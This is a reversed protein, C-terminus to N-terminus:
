APPRSTGCCRQSMRAIVDRATMLSRALPPQMLLHLSRFSTEGPQAMGKGIELLRTNGLATQRGRLPDDRCADVIVIALKHAGGTDQIFHLDRGPLGTFRFEIGTLAFTNGSTSPCVQKRRTPPCPSWSRCAPTSWPSGTAARVSKPPGPNRRRRGAARGTAGGGSPRPGRCRGGRRRRGPLLGAGDLRVTARGDDQAMAPGGSLLLALCLWALISLARSGAGARGGEAPGSRRPPGTRVKHGLTLFRRAGGLPAKSRTTRSTSSCGARRQLPRRGPRATAPRMTPM